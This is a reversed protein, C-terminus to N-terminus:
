IILQTSDKVKKASKYFSPVSSNDAKSNYMKISMQHQLDFQSFRTAPINCVLQKYRDFVKMHLTARDTTDEGTVLTLSEIMYVFEVAQRTQPSIAQGNMYYRCCENIDFENGASFGHMGNRSSLDQDVYEGNLSLYQNDEVTDGENSDFFKSLAVGNAEDDSVNGNSNEDDRSGVTELGTSTTLQSEAVRSRQLNKVIDIPPRQSLLLPSQDEDRDSESENASENITIMSTAKNKSNSPLAMSSPPLAPPRFPPLPALRKGGNLRQLLPLSMNQRLAAKAALRPLKYVHSLSTSAANVAPTAPATVDAPTSGSGRKRGRSPPAGGSAAASGHAFSM